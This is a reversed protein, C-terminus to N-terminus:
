WKKNGGRRIRNSDADEVGERRRKKRKVEGEERRM